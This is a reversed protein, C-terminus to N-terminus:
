SVHLGRSRGTSRPRSVKILELQCGHNCEQGAVLLCPTGQEIWHSHGAVRLNFSEGGLQVRLM